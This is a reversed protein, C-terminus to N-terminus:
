KTIDKPDINNPKYLAGIKNYKKSPSEISDPGQPTFVKNNNYSNVAPPAYSM